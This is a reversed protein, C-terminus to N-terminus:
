TTARIRQTPRGAAPSRLIVPRSKPSASVLGHASRLTAKNASALSDARQDGAM